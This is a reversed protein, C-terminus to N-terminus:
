SFLSVPPARSRWSHSRELGRAVTLATAALWPAMGAPRDVLVPAPTLYHGAHAIERCVPCDVPDDSRHPSSSLRASPPAGTSAAITRAGGIPEGTVHFHSQTLVAQWALLLLALARILRASSGRWGPAGIRPSASSATM